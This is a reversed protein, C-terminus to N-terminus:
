LKAFYQADDFLDSDDGYKEIFARLEKTSATLVIGGELGLKEHTLRVKRNKILAEIFEDDFSKLSLKGNNFEVKAFTHGSIYNAAFAGQRRKDGKPYPIFDLYKQGGIETLHVLLYSITTDSKEIEQHTLIYFPLEKSETLEYGHPAFSPAGVTMSISSNLRQGKNKEFTVNAAREFTWISERNLFIDDINLEFAKRVMEKNVEPKKQTNSFRVLSDGEPSDRICM